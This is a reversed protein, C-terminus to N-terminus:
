SFNLVNLSKFQLIRCIFVGNGLFFDTAITIFSSFIGRMESNLKTFFYGFKMVVTSVIRYVNASKQFVGSFIQYNLLFGLKLFTSFICKKVFNKLFNVFKTSMCDESFHLKFWTRDINSKFMLSFHMIRNMLLSQITTISSNKKFSKVLSLSWFISHGNGHCGSM